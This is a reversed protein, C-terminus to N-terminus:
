SAVSLLLREALGSLTTIAASAVAILIVAYTAVISRPLKESWAYILVGAAACFSCVAAAVQAFAMRVFAIPEESPGANSFVVAVLIPIIVIGFFAVWGLRKTLRAINRHATDRHASDSTEVM